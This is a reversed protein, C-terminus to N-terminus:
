VRQYARAVAGPVLDAQGDQAPAVRGPPRVPGPRLREQRLLGPNQHEIRLVPDALDLLQLHDSLLPCVYAYAGHLAVKVVGVTLRLSASLLQPLMQLAM